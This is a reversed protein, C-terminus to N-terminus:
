KLIGILVLSALVLVSVGSLYNKIVTKKLPKFYVDLHDNPNINITMEDGINPINKSFGVPYNLEFREGDVKYNLVPYYFDVELNPNKILDVIEAKVELKHTYINYKLTLYYKIITFIMILILSVMFFFIITKDLPFKNFRYLLISIGLSLGIPFVMPAYNNKNIFLLIGIVVLFVATISLMLFYKDKLAVVSILLIAVLIYIINDITKKM